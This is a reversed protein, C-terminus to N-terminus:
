RARSAVYRAVGLLAAGELHRKGGSTGVLEKLAEDGSQEASRAIIGRVEDEMQADEVAGNGEHIAIFAELVALRSGDAARKSKAESVRQEVERCISLEEELLEAIDREESDRGSVSPSAPLSFTPTPIRPVSADSEAASNHTTGQGPAPTGTASVTPTPSSSSSAPSKSSKGVEGEEIRVVNEVVIGEQVLASNDGVDLGKHALGGAEPASRKNLSLRRFVFATTLALGWGVIVVTALFKQNPREQLWQRADATAEWAEEARSEVATYIRETLPSENERESM